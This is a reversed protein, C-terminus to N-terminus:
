GEGAEGRLAVVERQRQELRGLRDGREVPAQVSQLLVVGREVPRHLALHGEHDRAGGGKGVGGSRPPDSILVSVMVVVLGQDRVRAPRGASPLVATRLRWVLMLSTSINVAM